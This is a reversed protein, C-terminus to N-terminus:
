RFKGSTRSQPRGILCLFNQSKHLDISSIERGNNYINNALAEDGPFIMGMQSRAQM